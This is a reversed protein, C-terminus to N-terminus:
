DLHAALNIRDIADGEEDRDQVERDAIAQRLRKTILEPEDPLLDTVVLYNSQELLSALLPGSTDTRSGNSCGDSITLALAHLM